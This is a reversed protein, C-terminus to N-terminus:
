LYRYNEHAAQLFQHRKQKNPRSSSYYESMFGLFYGLLALFKSFVQWFDQWNKQFVVFAVDPKELENL